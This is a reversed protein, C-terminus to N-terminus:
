LLDIGMLRDSVVLLVLRLPVLSLIPFRHHEQSPSGCIRNFWATILTLSEVSLRKVRENLRFITRSLSWFGSPMQVHLFECWRDVQLQTLLECSVDVLIMITLHDFIKSLLKCPFVLPLHFRPTHWALSFTLLWCLSRDVLSLLRLWVVIFMHELFNVSLLFHCIFVFTFINSQLSFIRLQLLFNLIIFFNYFRDHSLIAMLHAVIWILINSNGLRLGSLMETLENLASGLQTLLSMFILLQVLIKLVHGFVDLQGLVLLNNLFITFELKM